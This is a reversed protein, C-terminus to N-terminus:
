VKGRRLSPAQVAYGTDLFSSEVGRSMGMETAKRLWKDLPYVEVDSGLKERYMAALNAMGYKEDSCYNHIAFLEGDHSLVTSVFTPALEEVDMVELQGLWREPNLAPVARMKTCYLDLAVLYHEEPAGNGMINVLRHVASPIQGPAKEILMEAVWKCTAYGFGPRLQSEADSPPSFGSVSTEALESAGGQLLAVASSSIYHFPVRRPTAMALLIQTSGLNANRLAEYSKLLNVDAGLHIIVDATKALSTFDESSLGLLPKTLDGQYERVKSHQVRVRRSRVALCHIEAVAPNDILTRLIHTGIFGTSGTLVVRRGNDRRPSDTSDVGQPVLLSIGDILGEVEKAWDTQKDISKTGNVAPAAGNTAQATGNTVPSAGNAVPATGNVEPEPEKRLKRWDVLVDECLRSMSYSSSLIKLVSVDVGVEELFWERIRVAVLSDIGLNAVPMDRDMQEPDIELVRGLTQSFCKELVALCLAPEKAAALQAGVSTSKSEQAKGKEQQSGSSDQRAFYCSLRLDRRRPVESSTELGTILEPPADSGPRGCVIAEALMEHLETESERVARAFGTEQLTAAHDANTRFVYGFGSMVALVVVSGPLGRNRRQRILSTMALNAANYASQGINGVVTMTSSLAIFFELEPHGDSFIEDLIQTGKVKPALVAAFDTWSMNVFMRDRLVMAGNIVGGVPPMTSKIDAYAVRLANRDTIDVAMARVTAGKQAMFEIVSSPVKPTRSVLVVNQAGNEVMWRCVSIGMDGGMGFLLYTKDPTFLHHDLPRVTTTVDSAARWDLVMTPETQKLTEALTVQDIPLIPASRLDKSSNRFHQKALQFLEWRSVILNTGGLEKVETSSPLTARMLTHLAENQPNELNIFTRVDKPRIKNLAGSNAYPHIFISGSLNATDSTTQFVSINQEEAAYDIFQKLDESAGHIWLPSTSDRVLNEALVHALFNSLETADNTDSSATETKTWRYLVQDKDATALSSRAHSLALIKDGSVLERGICLYVPGHKDLNLTSISSATVRLQTKNDKELSLPLAQLELTGQESLVVAADTRDLKTEQSVQRNRAATRHNVTDLSLVRPIYIAGDRLSLEPEHTWQVDDWRSEGICGLRLFLTALMSPDVASLEDVDLFQLRLDSREVLATRGLGVTVCAEPNKGSTAGLTVWLVVDANQIINQLGKFREENMDHFIPGDVDSLCLVAAGNPIEIGELRSKRTVSAGTTASLIAETRSALDSTEGGLILIEGLPPLTEPTAALPERLIQVTEDTAQSMMVSCFSPTSSADVGSFGTAKLLTDWRDVSVTPSWVRGDEIGLFWGPLTSMYLQMPLNDDTIEVLLLYGGPRLLQRCHQLTEELRRTAHLVNSAIIMDYSGESFGQAIPDNEINLTKFTVNSSDKKFLSRAKEFFGVSIDTYTYSAYHDGMSALVSKTAGGTGAGVELIHMRPHRCALQKALNHIDTNVAEVGLGEVYLREIMGDRMLVQLPPVNGRVIDPLNQGVAHLLNMDINGSALYGSGLEQLMELTDNEWEPRIDPHEGAEIQPFLHELVWRMLHRQYKELSDLESPKIEKRLLRYYCYATRMLLEGLAIDEDSLKAKLNPEIGSAADRIWTESAYLWRDKHKGLAMLRVGRMQVETHSDTADFLDVDGIISTADGSTVTIDAKFLPSPSPSPEMSIRVCDIHTPLYTTHLRGDGPFSFAALLGQITTDVPAPHMSARMTSNEPPPAVTIEAQNLRRLISPVVFKGSYNYGLQSLSSYFIETNLPDTPMLPEVRPPLSHEKAQGLWLRVGGSFHANIGPQFSDHQGQADVVGSYCAVQATICDATQSTTRLTFLVELGTSDEELRMPRVLDIDHMEVLRIPQEDDALRVAAEYAMSLYGSAPFLVEGQIRHGRLWPLESLRFVQRWHVERRDQEGHKLPHGLLEHRPESQTRLIRSARPEKWWTNEHDWSYTPLDKMVVPKRSTSSPFVRNVGEFTILPRSSPFSKWVLGLADAFAEAANKGRSLVGTYPLSIDTLAQITESSPGKLAPHPGVELVIDFCHEETVARTLAQSFLVPKTLNEVWYQGKLIQGQDDEFSRNFGSSGWVSSYWTSTKSGKLAKMGCREMAELYPAACPQMHHSHYATDVALVRAFLKDQLRSKADEIADADGALTCSTASNSAAVTIRGGYESCFETAEDMSMGVAMMKGRQEGPGQALRSYIGRYYAIRIADGADLYGAAYAAGIEGSSHGVVAAFEIGAAHIVDVLAVQLATCLPQSIAATGVRSTDKPASLEDMLKWDPRDAEPLSNLSHQMQAMARRFVDSAEYLERGMTAWQAGQGTFVGLIRPPLSKPISAIRSTEKLTETSAELKEILQTTSTASFAARFPFSGRRFLTYALETLDTDPNRRLHSALTQATAALAQSSNASLVFLRSGGSKSSHTKRASGDWSEIIAHSNTGGFGFSNVSVRRPAGEPISPWPLTETPVRLNDYFPRIKPNLEQFHLNAPIRGHQVALSAKLLGALGASGETHGIITKISGM